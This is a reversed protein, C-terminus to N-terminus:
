RIFPAIVLVAALFWAVEVVVGVPRQFWQIDQAFKSLRNPHWTRHRRALRYRNIWLMDPSAALFACIAALFWHAPQTIALISVLGVCLSVEAILYNRFATTKITKDPTASGYHPIADCIFHSVLALPPALWPQGVLLGIATGTLAHNIMTM